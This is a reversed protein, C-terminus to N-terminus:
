LLAILDKEDMAHYKLGEQAMIADDEVPIILTLGYKDAIESLLNFRWSQTSLENVTLWPFCLIKKGSAFAVAPSYLWANHSLSSIKRDLYTEQLHFIETIDSLTFASHKLAKKLRQRVTRGFYRKLLYRDENGVYYTIKQLQKLNMISDDYRICEYTLTKGKIGSCLSYSTPWGNGSLPGKILTMGKEFCATIDFSYGLRGYYNHSYWGYIFMNTITLSM